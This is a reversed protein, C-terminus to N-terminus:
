KIWGIEKLEDYEIEKELPQWAIVKDHVVNGESIWIDEGGNKYRFGCGTYTFQSGDAYEVCLVLQVPTELSPKSVTLPIWGNHNEYIDEIKCLKNKLSSRWSEAWEKLNGTAIHSAIEECNVDDALGCLESIIKRPVVM